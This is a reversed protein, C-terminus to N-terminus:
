KRPYSARSYHSNPVLLAASDDVSERTGEKSPSDKYEGGSEIQEDAAEKLSDFGGESDDMADAEFDFNDEVDEDEMSEDADPDGFDDDADEDDEDQERNAAPVFDANMPVAGYQQGYGMPQGYGHQASYLLQMPSQQLEHGYRSLFQPTKSILFSNKQSWSNYYSVDPGPNCRHYGPGNGHGLYRLPRQVIPRPAFIQAQISETSLSLLGIALCIWGIRRAMVDGTLFADM